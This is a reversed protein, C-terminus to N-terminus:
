KKDMLYNDFKAVQQIKCDEDMEGHRIEKM